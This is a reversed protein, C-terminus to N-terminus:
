VGVAFGLSPAPKNWNTWRVGPGVIPRPDFICDFIFDFTRTLKGPRRRFHLRLHRRLHLLHSASHPPLLCFIGFSLPLLPGRGLVQVLRQLVTFSSFGLKSTSGLICEGQQMIRTCYFLLTFQSPQWQARVEDMEAGGPRRRM